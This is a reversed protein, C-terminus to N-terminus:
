VNKGTSTVGLVLDLDNILWFWYLNFLNTDKHATGRKHTSDQDSRTLKEAQFQRWRGPPASSWWLWGPPGPGTWGRASSTSCRGPSLSSTEGTCTQHGQSSHAARCCICCTLSHIQPRMQPSYLHSAWSPVLTLIANDTPQESHICINGLIEGPSIDHYFSNEKRKKVPNWLINNNRSISNLSGSFSPDMGKM